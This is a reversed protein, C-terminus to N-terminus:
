EHVYEIRDGRVVRVFEALKEVKLEYTAYCRKGLEQLKHMTFLRKTGEGVVAGPVEDEDILVDITVKPQGAITVLKVGPMQPLQKCLETFPRYRPVSVLKHKDLTEYIVDIGILEEGVWTFDGKFQDQPDHIIIGVKDVEIYKGDQTYMAKIPACVAANVALGITSSLASFVSTFKTLYSEKSNWITTWLGKIKELYPYMHFPTRDLFESYDKAIEAQYRELATLDTAERWNVGDKVRAVARSPLSALFGSGLVFTMSVVMFLNIAFNEGIGGFSVLFNILFQFPADVTQSLTRRPQVVL